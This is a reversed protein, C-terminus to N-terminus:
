FPKNHTVPQAPPTPKQYFHVGSVWLKFAQWHIRAVVTFAQAPYSLLARLCTTVTLAAHEGSISTSLTIDDPHNPAHAADYYAIRLVSRETLLMWSFRYEGRVPFFPSVHFVKKAVIQAGNRLPAGDAHHLLYCHQEGFTNHVEALVAGLEGNTRHCFWFSVPKFAYGLVSPFTHLYTEGTCDSLGEHRLVDDVWALASGHASNRTGHDRDRFGLLAARNVGFLGLGLRQAPLAALARMNLRVFVTGVTFANVVPYARAHRTQGFGFRVHTGAQTM